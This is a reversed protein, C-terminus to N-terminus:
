SIKVFVVDTNDSRETSWCPGVCDSKACFDDCLFFCRNDCFPHQRDSKVVELIEGWVPIRKGIEITENEEM